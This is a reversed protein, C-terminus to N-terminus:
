LRSGRRTSLGDLVPRTRVELDQLLRGLAVLREGLRELLEDEPLVLGLKGLHLDELDDIELRSGGGFQVGDTERTTTPAAEGSSVM